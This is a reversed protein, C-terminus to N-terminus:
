YPREGVTNGAPYYNCVWVQTGDGECVRYSCGVHTTQAWVVQTYHGCMAGPTCSNTEYDYDVVESAWANVITAPAALPTPTVSHFEWYLNEGIFKGNVYNGTGTYAVGNETWSAERSPRHEMNCDNTQALHEAWEDAIGALEPEWSLDNLGM